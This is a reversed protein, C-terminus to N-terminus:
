VTAHDAVDGVEPPEGALQIDLRQTFGELSGDVHTDQARIQGSRLAHGAEDLGVRLGGVDREADQALAARTLFLVALVALVPVRFRLVTASPM